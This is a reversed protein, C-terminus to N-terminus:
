EKFNNSKSGKGGVGGHRAKGTYHSHMEGEGGGDAGKFFEDKDIKNYQFDETGFTSEVM